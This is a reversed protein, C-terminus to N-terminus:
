QPVQVEKIVLVYIPITTFTVRASDQVTVYDKGVETVKCVFPQNLRPYSTITYHGSKEDLIVQQGVHIHDLFTKPQAPDPSALVTNIALACGIITASIALVITTILTKM